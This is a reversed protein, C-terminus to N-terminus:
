SPSTRTPCAVLMMSEAMVRDLLLQVERSSAQVDRGLSAQTFNLFSTAPASTNFGVLSANDASIVGLDQSVNASLNSDSSALLSLSQADYALECEFAAVQASINMAGAPNSVNAGFNGGFGAPNGAFGAGFAGPGGAQSNANAQFGGVPAGQLSLACSGSLLILAVAAMIASAEFVWRARNTQGYSDWGGHISKLSSIGLSLCHPTPPYFPM